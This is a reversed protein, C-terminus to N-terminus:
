RARSFRWESSSRIFLKTKWVGHRCCHTGPTGSQRVSKLMALLSLADKRSSSLWLLSGVPRTHRISRSLKSMWTELNCAMVSAAWRGWLTWSYTMKKHRVSIGSRLNCGQWSSRKDLNSATSYESFGSTHSSMRQWYTLTQASKASRPALYM